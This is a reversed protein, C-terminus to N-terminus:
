GCNFWLPQMPHTSATQEDVPLTDLEDLEQQLYDAPLMGLNRLERIMEYDDRYWRMVNRRAQDSLQMMSRYEHPTAHRCSAAVSLPPPSFSLRSLSIARLREYDEDKAELRGVFLLREAEAYARLHARSFLYWSLGRPLHPVSSWAVRAASVNAVSANTSAAALPAPYLQAAMHEPTPFNRYADAEAPTHECNNM